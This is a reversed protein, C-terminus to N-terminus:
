FRVRVGAAVEVGGAKVKQKGIDPDDFKVDGRSYRVLTGVGVQSTLRRSIDVGANFGVATNSLHKTTANAFTATDFPYTESVTVGSVFDQKLNFFTPGGMVKVEVAHVPLAYMLDVHVNQENHAVDDISGQVTRSANFLIPHPVAATVSASPKIDAMAYYAGVWFQPVIRVAAGGNFALATRMGHDVTATATEGGNSPFAASTTFKSAGTLPGVNASVEVRRGIARAAPRVPPASPPTPSVAAVAPRPQPPDAPAAPAPAPSDVSTSLVEAPVWGYIAARDTPELPLRVRYWGNRAAEAGTVRTGAQITRVVVSAASPELHVAVPGKNVVFQQGQIYQASATPLVVWSLCFAFLMKVM